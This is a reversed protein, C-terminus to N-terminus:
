VDERGPCGPQEAMRLLTERDNWEPHELVQELLYELTEGLGVGPKRGAAILDAGNVALQKLSVCYAKSRIEETVRRVAELVEDATRLNQMLSQRGELFILWLDFVEEGMRNMQRRIRYADAVPEETSYGALSAAKLITDNDFKLRQLVRKVATKRAQSDVCGGQLLAANLLTAWCLILETHTNMGCEKYRRLGRLVTAATEETCLFERVEPLVVAAIGCSELALLREPMASLLLKNLEDRIREASIKNLHLSRERIAEETATEVSFGLQASFRLARLIRLADEDFREGPNGVCRIIGAKLDEEGRFLDVLGDKHNYAMANITFDRRKLDEQLSKTFTVEKPHRADEYEGDLRYTTVEYGTEGLMVTVTGHKIGTDVTRRFLAKVQYPDASTTVDWDKPKRELMCDRVCGGVAYAEYGANQLTEIIYEVKEPLEIRM